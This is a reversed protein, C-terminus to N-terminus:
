LYHLPKQLGSGKASMKSMSVASFVITNMKMGKNHAKQFYDPKM